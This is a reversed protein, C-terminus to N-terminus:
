ISLRTKKQVGAAGGEGVASGGGEGPAYPELAQKLWGLTAVSYADEGFLTEDATWMQALDSKGTIGARELRWAAGEEDIEMLIRRLEADIKHGYREAASAKRKEAKTRAETAKEDMDLVRSEAAGAERRATVDAAYKNARLVNCHAIDAAEKSQHLAKNQCPQLDCLGCVRGMSL